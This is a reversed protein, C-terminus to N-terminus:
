VGPTPDAGPPAPSPSPPARGRARRGPRDCGVDAPRPIGHSPWPFVMPFGYSFPPKIPTLPIYGAQYVTVYSHNLGGYFYHTKGHFM